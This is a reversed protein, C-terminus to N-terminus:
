LYLFDAAESAVPRSLQTLRGEDNSAFLVQNAGATVQELHGAAGFQYDRTGGVALTIQGLVATNGSAANAVYTYTDTAGDRTESLRNGIRDDSWALSGWPGDGRTLFYQFDQYAYTKTEAQPTRNTDIGAVFSAGDKVSFGSGLAIRTGATFTASGGTEVSFAPGAEIGACTAFSETGTVAQNALFLDAESCGILGTVRLINGVGDTTYDWRRPTPAELM